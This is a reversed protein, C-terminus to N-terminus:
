VGELFAALVKLGTEHDGSVKVTAGGNTVEVTCYANYGDDIRKKSARLTLVHGEGPYTDLKAGAEVFRAAVAERKAREGDMQGAKARQAAIAERYGPLMRRALDKAVAMADRGFGVTVNPAKVDVWQAVDQAVASRGHVEVRGRYDERLFLGPLSGDVPAMACYRAYDWTEEGLAWPRGDVESLAESVGAAWTNWEATKAAREAAYRDMAESM